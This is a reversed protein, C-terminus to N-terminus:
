TVNTVSDHHVIARSTGGRSGLLLREGAGSRDREGARLLSM